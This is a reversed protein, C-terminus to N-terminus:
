TTCLFRLRLLDLNARGYMQRKLMKLRNVQGETQGNSWESCCAAQVAAQDQRMKTALNALEFIKSRECATLWADLAPAKRQRVLRQFDQALTKARALVPHTLLADRLSVEEPALQDTSKLLLWVLHRAAPLPAHDATGDHSILQIGSRTGQQLYKRPTTSGPQERREYAWEMVQKRTGPYGQRKIERWLQSANRCGARWRQSLYDVFPDLISARRPHRSREPVASMSLYRYVTTRSLKLQQAITSIPHGATHLRHIKAHLALLRAQRGDHAARETRGRYRQRILAIEGSKESTKMLRCTILEPRLRDVLKELAERLNVLLHWRDAVQQAQPAGLAIGRAYESSRDRAVIKTSTHAQLWHALTEATRDPLLDVARRRELDVLITGYVRGRRQAWDDVGIVAPDELHVDPMRRILRLLTDRSASMKLKLALTQGAQGGVALAVAGLATELRETRQRHSALLAPLREAFTVKACHTNLCRFRRVTLRLHVRRDAIPLDAPARRYYSHVCRSRRQCAPCIAATAISHAVIEIRDNQEQVEDVEFGPLAFPLEIPTM